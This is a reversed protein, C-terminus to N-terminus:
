GGAGAHHRLPCLGLSTAGEGLRPPGIPDPLTLAHEPLSGDRQFGDLHGVDRHRAGVRPAEPLVQDLRADPGDEGHWHDVLAPQDATQAHGAIPGTLEGSLRDVQQAGERGLRGQRDLIGAEKLLEGVLAALQFRGALV